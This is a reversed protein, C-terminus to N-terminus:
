SIDLGPLGVSISLLHSTRLILPLPPRSHSSVPRPNRQLLPFFIRPDSTYYGICLETFTSFILSYEFLIFRRNYSNYRLLVAQFLAVLTPAQYMNVGLSAVTHAMMGKRCPLLSSPQRPVALSALPVRSATPQPSPKSWQSWLNYEPWRM